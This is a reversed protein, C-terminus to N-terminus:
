GSRTFACRLARCSGFFYGLGPVSLADRQAPSSCANLRRPMLLFAADDVTRIQPLMIGRRVLQRSKLRSVPAEFDLM